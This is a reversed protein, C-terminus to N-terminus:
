SEAPEQLTQEFEELDIRSVFIDKKTPAFDGGFFQTPRYNPIPAVVRYLNDRKDKLQVEYPTAGVSPSDTILTYIWDNKWPYYSLVIEYHSYAQFPPESSSLPELYEDRVFWFLRIKNSVALRLIHTDSVEYNCCKKLSNAAEDLTLWDLNKNFMDM